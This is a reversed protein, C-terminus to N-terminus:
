FLTKKQNQLKQLVVSSTGHSNKGFQVRLHDSHKILVGSKMYFSSYKRTLTEEKNTSYFSLLSGCVVQVSMGRVGRRKM